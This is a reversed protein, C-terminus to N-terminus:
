EAAAFYSTRRSRLNKFVSFCDADRRLPFCKLFTPLSIKRSAVAIARRPASTKSRVIEAALIEQAARLLAPTPSRVKCSKETEIARFVTPAVSGLAIRLDAIRGSDMRAAGAFCM